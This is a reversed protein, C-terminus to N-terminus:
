LNIKKYLVNPKTIIHDVFGYGVAEEATIYSDKAMLEKLVKANVKTYKLALKELVEKQLRKAEEIDNEIDTLKGGSMTSLQHMLVRSNPTIFRKGKTGSILLMQGCSMAKGICVTAVDCHIMKMVDHIAVFSDIYGGYSDIFLIIDKTPDDAEFQLLKSVIHQAKREDFAGSMYIIRNNEIHDVIKDAM